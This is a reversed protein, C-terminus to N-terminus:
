TIHRHGRGCFNLSEMVAKGHVSKYGRGTSLGLALARHAARRLAQASAVIDADHSVAPGRIM